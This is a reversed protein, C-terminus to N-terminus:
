KPVIANHKRLVTTLKEHPLEAPDIGEAVSLAAM